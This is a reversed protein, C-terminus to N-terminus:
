NRLHVIHLRFHFPVRELYDLLDILKLVDRIKPVKHVTVEQDTLLVASIIQLAENKAGQPVIEGALKHGGEVQFSSM